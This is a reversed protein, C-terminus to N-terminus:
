LGRLSKTKILSAVNKWNIGFADLINEIKLGITKKITQEYDISSPIHKVFTPHDPDDVFKNGFTVSHGNKIIDPLDFNDDLAVIEIKSYGQPLLDPIVYIFKPKSGGGYNTQKNWLGSHQNTWRAARIWDQNGYLDLSKSIGKSFALKELGYEKNRIKKLESKVYDILEKNSKENTILEELKEIIKMAIQSKDSKKMGKSDIKDVFKGYMQTEENWKGEEWVKKGFYVKKAVKNSGKKKVMVINQYIKEPKMLFYHKDVNFVKSLKDYQKNVIESLKYIETYADEKNTSKLIPFVSDTDGYYNVYGLKDMVKITYQIVLRGTATIGSAISKNYLRFGVWGLVGYISNTIFKVVTQIRNFIDFNDMDGKEKYDEATNRYNDRIELLESLISNLFSVKDKKFYVDQIPSKILSPIEDISPKYVITDEGMNLTLLIMPYLSKLDIVGVWKQLGKRKSQFVVAGKYGEKVRGRKSPLVINADKAKFLMYADVIKSNSLVDEFSCGAFCKVDYFFGFVNNVESIAYELFVDQINYQLLKVRDEEWMKDIGQHEVKGIKFLTKAVFDLKYSELENIVTKKYGEWTDFVIRGKIIGIGRNIWCSEVPSLRKYELKLKMMRRLLYPIDFKKSNWGTILDPDTDEVFDIFTKLMDHENNFAFITSNYTSKFKNPISIPNEFSTTIKEGNIEDYHWFFTVFKDLYTDYCAISYISNVPKNHNPIRGGTELTSVEIDLHLRRLKAKFDIPKLYDEGYTVDTKNVEFGSKIGLDIATRTTFYIDDEYTTKFLHRLGEKDQRNGGVDEPLLCQIKKVNGGIITKRNSKIVKYRKNPPVTEHKDIYFYPFFNYIWIHKREGKKNRGFLHVIAEDEDTTYEIKTLAIQETINSVM